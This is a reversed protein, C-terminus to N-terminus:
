GLTMIAFIVVVQTKGNNYIGISTIFSIMYAQFFTFIIL